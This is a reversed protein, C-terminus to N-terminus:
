KLYVTLGNCPRCSLTIRPSVQDKRVSIVQNTWGCRLQSAYSCSNCPLTQLLVQDPALMSFLQPLTPTHTLTIEKNWAPFCQDWGLCLPPPLPPDPQFTKLFFLFYHWPQLYNTNSSKKKQPWLIDMYIANGTQQIQLLPHIMGDPYTVTICIM